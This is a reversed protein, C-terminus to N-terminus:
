EEHPENLYKLARECWEEPSLGHSDREITGLARNCHTCLTGRHIRKVHCHDFHKHQSTGVPLHVGCLNCSTTYSYREIQEHTAAYKRKLRYYQKGTLPLGLYDKQTYYKGTIYARYDCDKCSPRLGDVNQTDLWFETLPKLERCRTCRKKERDMKELEDWM